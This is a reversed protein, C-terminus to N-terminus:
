VLDLKRPPMLIRLCRLVNNHHDIIQQANMQHWDWTSHADSILTVEYGLSFARRCTTDVCVESQIGAFHLHKIRKKKLEKELDTELFSDPTTKQIITDEPRPTLDWHLEWGETGYEM